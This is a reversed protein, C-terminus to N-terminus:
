IKELVVWQYGGGTVMWSISKSRAVLTFSNTIIIFLLCVQVSFHGISRLTLIMEFLPPSTKITPVEEHKISRHNPWHDFICARYPM